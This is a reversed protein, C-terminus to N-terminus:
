PLGDADGHLPDPVECDRLGPAQPVPGLLELMAKVFSGSNGSFYYQRELDYYQPLRRVGKITEAPLYDSRRSTRRDEFHNRDLANTRAYM